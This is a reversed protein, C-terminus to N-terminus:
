PLRGKYVRITNHFANVLDVVGDGDVDGVALGTSTNAVFQSSANVFVANGRNLLISQSNSYASGSGSSMRLALDPTGDNNLDTVFVNVIWKDTEPFALGLNASADTFRGTGDNLLLQLGPIEAKVDSALVLDKAGDGNLDACVIDVTVSKDGFAKAPLTRSADYAFRGAGDNMLLGNPRHSGPGNPEYYNGGLILDPRNDGNVDCFAAAMAEPTGSSVSAPLLDTRDVMTGSGNNVYLRILDSPTLNAMFIDPASDGNVDAVDAGHTYANHQPLRASTEDVLRGDATQILLRSQDGPYPFTDTGTDAIFLDARGDKNFDAVRLRRPNVLQLPGLIQSTADAFVGGNNRFALLPRKTAPFTPMAVQAMILDLDGDSDVDILALDSADTILSTSFTLTQETYSPIAVSAAGSSVTLACATTLDTIVGAKVNNLLHQLFGTFTSEAKVVYHYRNTSPAINAGTEITSMALVTRGGAPVASATYTGLKAGTTADYIGLTVSVAVAGTNNVVISSPYGVDGVTSTHVANLKTADATVGSACTSLNTLTGDAPKWLVHQFYGSINSSVGISYYSPKIFSQGTGGEIDGIYHQAAAGAPIPPSIWQGLSRGTSYDSLTVTATGPATGTNYFRLYSQSTAQATSLIASPRTLLNATRPVAQNIACVTTMDTIVGSQANTLLHQLFGAFANEAKVVYHYRNVSVAINAGAEIMSIPLVAQGGAPIATTTYAGLKVGSDADYLGLVASASLFGTNNVVVSSPYGVDGVVSTHVASLRTPDTIVGSDCTSLNTLTGDTPKWLVHQFYGTINSQVSVAYYDPRPATAGISSEIDGIYYQVEAGAPIAPTRWTGVLQGTAANSLTLTATGSDKGTNYFRLYSRSAQQATSFIVSSKPACTAGSLTDTLYFGDSGSSLFAKRGLGHPDVPLAHDFTVPLNSSQRVFTGASNNTHLQLEAGLNLAIDATCDGDFDAADLRDMVAGTDDRLNFRQTSEDRYTGDGNNILVQIARGVRNNHTMALLLDPKGSPGITAPQIDVVVGDSFIKPPLADLRITFNGRCDNILVQSQAYDSENGLVLDQCGDGNVDAFVSASFTTKNENITGINSPLRDRAVTFRGNGDNMLIQPPVRQNSDINGMYIAIRGSGDIDAAAASNTAALQQPLNTSADVYRGNPQSLLLVSQAGPYPAARYGSDPIFVDPRGDGNFDTTVIKAPAVATPVSGQIVTSTGDTYSGNGNNLLVQIAVGRNQAPATYSFAVIVDELGDGNLDLTAMRSVSSGSPNTFALIKQPQAYTTAAAAHWHMAALFPLCSQLVVSWTTRALGANIGKDYINHTNHPTSPCLDHRLSGGYRYVSM